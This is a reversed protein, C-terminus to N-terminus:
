PTELCIPELKVRNRLFTGIYGYIVNILVLWPLERIIVYVLATFPVPWRSKTAWASVEKEWVFQFSRQHCM